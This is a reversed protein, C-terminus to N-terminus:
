KSIKCGTISSVISSGTSSSIIESTVFIENYSCIILSSDLSVKSDTLFFGM